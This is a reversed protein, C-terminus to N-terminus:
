FVDIEFFKESFKKIKVNPKRAIIGKRIVIKPNKRNIDRIKKYRSLGQTVNKPAEIWERVQLRSLHKSIEDNKIYLPIKIYRLGGLKKEKKQNKNNNKRKKERVLHLLM